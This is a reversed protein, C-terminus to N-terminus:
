KSLFILNYKIIDNFHKINDHIQLFVWSLHYYFYDYIHFNYGM